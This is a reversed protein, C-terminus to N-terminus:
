EYNIKRKIKEIKKRRDFIIIDNKDILFYIDENKDTKVTYKNFELINYVEFIKGIKNNYWNLSNNSKIIKVIM